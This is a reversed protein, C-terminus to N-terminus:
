KLLQFNTISCDNDVSKTESTEAGLSPDKSLISVFAEDDNITITVSLLSQAYDVVGEAPSQFKTLAGTVFRVKKSLELSSNSQEIKSVKANFDQTWSHIYEESEKLFHGDTEVKGFLSIVKGQSDTNAVIKVKQTAPLRETDWGNSSGNCTAILWSGKGVKKSTAANSDAFASLSILSGISILSSILQVSSKVLCVKSLLM